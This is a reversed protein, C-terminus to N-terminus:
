NIKEKKWGKESTYILWRIGADKIAAYCLTCPRAMAPSGNKHERYVVITAGKLSLGLAAARLIVHIEAHVTKLSSALQPHTKLTNFGGCLFRKGKYVCAGIRHQHHQSQKSYKKARRLGPGM